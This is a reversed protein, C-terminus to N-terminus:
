TDCKRVALSIIKMLNGNRGDKIEPNTTVTVKCKGTCEAPSHSDMTIQVDSPVSIRPKWICDFTRPETTRNQVTDEVVVSFKGVTAYSKLVSLFIVYCAGEPLDIAFTVSEGGNPNNAIWGRRFLSDLKLEFGATNSESMLMNPEAFISMTDKVLVFDTRARLAKHYDSGSVLWGTHLPVGHDDLTLDPTQCLLLATQAILNALLDSAIRHGVASPHVDDHAFFPVHCPKQTTHISKCNGNFYDSSVAFDCLSQCGDPRFQDTMDELRCPGCGHPYPLVRDMTMNAPIAYDFPQLKDLLRHYDPSIVDAYSVVSVKYHQAVGMHLLQATRRNLKATQFDLFVIAADPYDALLRYVVAEACAAIKDFGDFFVDEKEDLYVVHDQGQYDNVAFELVFMDPVTPVNLFNMRKALACMKSLFM